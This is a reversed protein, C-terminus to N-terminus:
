RSSRARARARARTFLREYDDVTRETSYLESALAAGAASDPPASLLARLGAEIAVVDKPSAIQGFGTLRVPERVGPLDSSLAAVGCRMAEVQVIGFAEFSNVSPLAFIDISAYFDDILDDAVFGLLEIRSDDGIAARVADIVSGGAVEAFGGGILLRANPDDIRRFARVLYEVGKEEVIRGLFGVHPGTGRRFSPLGGIRLRTPPSIPTTKDPTMESRLRSFSAYDATSPVIADGARLAIRNSVDMVKQQLRNVLGPPLSIDCHYTLVTPTRALFVAAAGSEIMPLHLNVVDARRGYKVLAPVFGPSILGKGFRALVGTRVVDVGNITQRRPLKRDHRCTVVLVRRGRRVLDEAVLRATETLGSVYPTYYNLGMVVDYKRSTRSM